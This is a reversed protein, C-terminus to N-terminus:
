IDEPFSAFTTFHIEPQLTNSFDDGIEELMLYSLSYRHPSHMTKVHIPTYREHNTQAINATLIQKSYSSVNKKKKCADQKQLNPIFIESSCSQKHAKRYKQEPGPWFCQSFVRENPMQARVGRNRAASWLSCFCGFM